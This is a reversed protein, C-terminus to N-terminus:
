SGSTGLSGTVEDVSRRLTAVIQDIEDDTVVFPPSMALTDAAPLARTIVGHERAAAAV